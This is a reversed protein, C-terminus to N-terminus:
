GASNLLKLNDKKAFIHAIFVNLGIVQGFVWEIEFVTDDEGVKKRLPIKTFDPYKRVM